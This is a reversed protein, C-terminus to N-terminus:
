TFPTANSGTDTLNGSVNWIGAGVDRYTLWDGLAAGGQTTSTLTTTTKAIANTIVAGATVLGQLITGWLTGTPVNIVYNSANITGINFNWVSGSGTAAPMTITLLSTSNLMFVTGSPNAAIQAASYTAATLSVPADIDGSLSQFLCSLATGNNVYLNANVLGNLLVFICGPAYDTTGNVPLVKGAAYLSGYGPAHILSGKPDAYGVDFRKTM